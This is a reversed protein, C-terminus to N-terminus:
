LIENFNVFKINPYEIVTHGLYKLIDSTNCTANCRRHTPLHITCVHQINVAAWFGFSSASLIINKFQQFYKFDSSANSSIIQVNYKMQFYQLYKTEENSYSTGVDRLMRKKYSSNESKNYVIHIDTYQFTKIINDYYDLYIIESDIGIRHFDDLRIHIVVTNDGYIKDSSPPFNIISSIFNTNHKYLISNQYYGSRKGLIIDKGDLLNKNQILEQITYEANNDTILFVNDDNSNVSNNNAITSTTSNINEKGIFQIVNNNTYTYYKIEDNIIQGTLFSIYRAFIYQFIINGSRGEYFIYIM